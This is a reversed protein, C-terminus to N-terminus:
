DMGVRIWVGSYKKWRRIILLLTSVIWQAGAALNSGAVDSWSDEGRKLIIAQLSVHSTRSTHLLFTRRFQRLVFWAPLKVSVVSTMIYKTNYFIITDRENENRLRIWHALSCDRGFDFLFIRAQSWFFACCEMARVLNLRQTMSAIVNSLM